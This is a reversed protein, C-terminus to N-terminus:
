NWVNRSSQEYSAHRLFPDINIEQPVVGLNGRITKPDKDLDLDFVKVEGSTKNVLGALINIFTSKGAGNPGLLWFYFRAKNEILETLPM